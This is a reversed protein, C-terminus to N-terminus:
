KNTSIFVSQDSETATFQKQKFFDQIVSYWVRPAQKLKYLARKLQYILLEKVFRYRQEVYVIKDLLKYLFITVM